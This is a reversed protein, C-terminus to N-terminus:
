AHREQSHLGAARAVHVAELRSHVDLKQFINRTHTRVTDTSIMLEQAIQGGRKGDLMGRLVDRERRSLVQLSDGDDKARTVDSRLARLIEGLMEPPFWSEGRCAGRLVIELEAAGQEKGVWAAVGARAADVAHSVDQDASLVVIKAQPRAAILKRLVEGTASGLPEVEITILDPRLGGIIDILSPDTHAGAAVWMDPVVSLRSALAETVMLHDDVLLLRLPNQRQDRVIRVVKGEDARM